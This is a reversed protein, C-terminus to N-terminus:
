IISIALWLVMKGKTVKDQATNNRDMPPIGGKDPNIDFHNTKHDISSSPYKNDLKIQIIKEDM